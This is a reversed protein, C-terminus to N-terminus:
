DLTSTFRVVGRRKPNVTFVPKHPRTAPLEVKEQEEEDEPPPLELPVAVEDQRLRVGPPLECHIMKGAVYDKLVIRAVRAEDPNGRATTFSRIKALSQLLDHASCTVGKLKTGYLLNFAEAPVKQCVIQVPGLWDTMQDINLVGNCIMGARSQQFSPFVLGPCDCLTVGDEEMHVTQLRRTKGPTSSSKACIRGVAANIMSSKGVNPFGVFGVTVRGDRGPEKALARAKLVLTKADLVDAEASVASVFEYSFPTDGQLGDFYRGWEQRIPPPVLDAKNMAVVAPIGLENMYRVFDTSLFALPDRADLVYIAVQSRELVHWLERWVDPNKEFPSLVVDGDEEIISLCRRWEIFEASEMERLEDATTSAGWHPRRPIVLRDRLASEAAAQEPTRHISEYAERTLEARDVIRIPGRQAAFKRGSLEAETVFDGLTYDGTM